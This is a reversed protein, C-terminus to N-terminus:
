FHVRLTLGAAKQGPSVHPTVQARVNPQDNYDYVSQPTSALDYFSRFVLVAGSAVMVWSLIGRVASQDIGSSSGNVSSTRDPTASLDPVPYAWFALTGSVIASGRIVMGTWARDRNQAYFHGLSPGVLLGVALGAMGLTGARQERIPTYSENARDLLATGGAVPLLTGGVGYLTALDVRKPARITDTVSAHSASSPENLATGRAVDVALGGLGVSFLGTLLGCWLLRRISDRM